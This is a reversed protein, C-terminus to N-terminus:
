FGAVTLSLLRRVTTLEFEELLSKIKKVTQSRNFNQTSKVFFSIESNGFIVPKSLEETDLEYPHIYIIAPKNEKNIEKIAWKIFCYPFLRLYGGGGFPIVQNFIKVTSVPVEWFMDNVIHPFREYGAWGYLKRKVPFISSDYNLGLEQLIELAWMSERTISFYPARYGTIREGIIGEILKISKEVDRKFDEKTMKYVLQHGYGHSGVEHGEDHITKVLDPFVEAVTGLVFFTARVGKKALIDLLRNTNEVVRSTPAIIKGGKGFLEASSQYWDEVDITLANIM